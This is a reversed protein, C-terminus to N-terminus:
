PKYRIKEPIATGSRTSIECVTCRAACPRGEKLYPGIPLLCLEWLEAREWRAAVAPSAELAAAMAPLPHWRNAVCVCAPFLHLFLSTVKDLSHYVLSNRFALISWLLPGMSFAFTVQVCDCSPMGHAM